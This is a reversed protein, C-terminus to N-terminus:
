AHCVELPRRREILSAPAIPRRATALLSSGIPWRLRAGIAHEARSLATLIANVPRVPVGVEYRRDGDAPAVLRRVLMPLVTWAYLYRLDDIRFGANELVARLSSATYRRYHENVVDHRSWLLPLAPVTILLRAGPRMANYLAGLAGADDAVHELVDLAVVLDYAEEATFEADLARHLIRARHPGDGILEADPELGDVCGYRELRDFLLGDGCGVDLIRYGAGLM